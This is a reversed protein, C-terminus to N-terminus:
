HDAGRGPVGAAAQRTGRCPEIAQRLRASAQQYDTDAIRAEARLRALAQDADDFEAGAARHRSAAVSAAERATALDAVRAQKQEGAWTALETWADLLSLEDLAPAGLAVVSDRASSLRVRASGEARELAALATEGKARVARATRLGDGAKAAADELRGLLALQETIQEEDPSGQLLRDLEAVRDIAQRLRASAQQYDTDAIRAEARLRALAQDADDFEAGAARHRSAAVSAAERAAALDAVRAQKQEGAWTAVMAWGTALNAADVRPAGLAVLPDRAIRLADRADSVDQDAHQAALQAARHRSRQAEAEKAARTAAQDLEARERALAGIETLARDVLSADIAKKGADATDTAAIARTTLLPASALPGALVDALSAILSTQRAVTSKLESEAKVVSLGAKKAVNQANREAREAETLRSRMDDLEPATIAAPLTTVTQDCLPCAEGAVLHPRLGAVVHARQAEELAERQKRLAETANPLETEASTLAARAQEAAHRTTELDALVARLDNLDRSAQALPAESM